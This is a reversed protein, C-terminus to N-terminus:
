PKDTGSEDHLHKAYIISNAPTIVYSGTLFKM